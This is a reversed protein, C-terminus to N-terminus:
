NIRVLVVSLKFLLALSAVCQMYEGGQLIVEPYRFEDFLDFESYMIRFMMQSM